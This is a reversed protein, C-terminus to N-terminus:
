ADKELIGDRTQAERDPSVPTQLVMWFFKGTFFVIIAWTVLLMTWAAATM